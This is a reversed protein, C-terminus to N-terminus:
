IGSRVADACIDPLRCERGMYRNESDLGSEVAVEEGYGGERLGRHLAALVKSRDLCVMKLVCDCLLNNRQNVIEM